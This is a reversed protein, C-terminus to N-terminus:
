AAIAVGGQAQRAPAACRQGGAAPAGPALVTIEGFPESQEWDAEGSRYLELLAFFTVAITMRDAGAVAEEFRFRGRALLSRLRSLCSQLSVRPRLIHRVDIQPPERLLAGLAKGLQAPDAARQGEAGFPRRRPAALESPVPASRFRMGAQAKRLTQLHAGAHQFRRLSLMRELLEQAAEEPGLELLEEVEEGPLLLRSKLELLAAILLIFEVASGLDLEGRQEIHELYALVVAALDLELLDLEERLILALLLDFPGSFVELDLEIRLGEPAPATPASM